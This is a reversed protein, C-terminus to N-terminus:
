ADGEPPTGFVEAGDDYRTDGTLRLAVMVAAASNVCKIICSSLQEQVIVIEPWALWSMWYGVLPGACTETMVIVEHGLPEINTVHTTIKRAVELEILEPDMQERLNEVNPNFAPIVWWQVQPRDEDRVKVAGMERLDQSITDKSAVIGAREHLARRIDELTDFGDRHYSGTLLRRIAIRRIQRLNRPLVSEPRTRAM